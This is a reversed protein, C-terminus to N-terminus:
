QGARLEILRAKARTVGPSVGTELLVKLDCLVIAFGETADLAAAMQEEPEGDFHGNILTVATGGDIEEVEIDVTSGDDWKWSLAREPEFRTLTTDVKAGPVMFEWHVSVGEALPGSSSSLWFRTLQQPEVFARLVDARAARILM